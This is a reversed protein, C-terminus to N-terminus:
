LGARSPSAPPDTDDRVLGLLDKILPIVRRRSKSPLSKVSNALERVEADDESDREESQTLAVTLAARLEQGLETAEGGSGSSRMALQSIGKGQLLAFLNLQAHIPHLARALAQSESATFFGAPVQFFKELQDSVKLTPSREGKLLFHVQGGSVGAATGLENLTYEKGNPKRRTDRLFALRTRFVQDLSETGPAAGNLLALVRDATIGTQHSIHAIEIVSRDLGVLPLLEDIAQIVAALDDAQAEDPAAVM